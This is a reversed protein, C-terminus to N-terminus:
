REALNMTTMRRVSEALDVSRLDEGRFGGYPRASTTSKPLQRRVLSKEPEAVIKPMLLLAAACCARFILRGFYFDFTTRSSRWDM